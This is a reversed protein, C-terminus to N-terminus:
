YRWVSNISKQLTFAQKGRTKRLYSIQSFQSLFWTTPYSSSIWHSPHTSLAEPLGPPKLWSASFSLHSLNYNTFEASSPWPTSLHIPTIIITHNYHAGPPLSPTIPHETFAYSAIPMHQHPICHLHMAPLITCNNISLSPSPKGM